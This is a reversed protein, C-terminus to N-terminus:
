QETWLKSIKEIMAPDGSEEAAKLSDEDLTTYELLLDVQSEWIIGKKIAENIARTGKEFYKEAEEDTMSLTQPLKYPYLNGKKDPDAGNMLFLKLLRNTDQVYMGIEKNIEEDPRKHGYMDGRTKTEEVTKNGWSIVLHWVYPRKHIDAGANLLMTFIREDPPNASRDYEGVSNYTDYIQTVLLDLPNSDYWGVDGICYNPDAGLKLAEEVIDDGAGYLGNGLMRAVNVRKGMIEEGIAKIRKL